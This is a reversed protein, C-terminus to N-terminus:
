SSLIARKQLTDLRQDNVVDNPARYQFSPSFPLGCEQLPMNQITRM